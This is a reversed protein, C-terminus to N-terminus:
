GGVRVRLGMRLQVGPALSRAIADIGVRFGISRVPYLTLGLGASLMPVARRQDGEYGRDAVLVSGGAGVSAQLWMGGSVADATVIAEASTWKEEIRNCADFCDVEALRGVIQTARAGVWLGGRGQREVTVTGGFYPIGNADTLGVDTGIRWGAQAQAEASVAAVLLLLLVVRRM